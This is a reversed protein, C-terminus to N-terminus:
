NASAFYEAMKEGLFDNFEKGGMADLEAMYDDFEDMSREGSIFLAEQAMMYNQLPTKYKNFYETDEESMYINDFYEFDEYPTNNEALTAQWRAEEENWGKKWNYSDAFYYAMATGTELGFSAGDMITNKEGSFGSVNDVNAPYSISQKEADYVWGNGFLDYETGYEPGWAYLLAMYPDYWTDCFKVCVEPYQTKASITWTFLDIPLGMWTTRTITDDVVVPIQASYSSYLDKNGTLQERGVDVSFGYYTYDTNTQGFATNSGNDGSMFTSGEVGEAKTTQILGEQYCKAMFEIVERYRPTYPSFYGEHTTSDVEDWRYGNYGFAWNVFIREPYGSNYSAQWPIENNPDGDGNADEDRFAILMDYFEDLTTPMDMGLRELWETNTVTFIGMSQGENVVRINSFGYMHGDPTTVVNVLRPQKQIEAMYKPCYEAYQDIPLFMGDLQGWTMMDNQWITASAMVMDPMSDTSMIINLKEYFVSSDVAEANFKVNMFKECFQFFWFDDKAIKNSDGRMLLSLEVLENAALISNPDTNALGANESAFATCSLAMLLVLALALLKKM